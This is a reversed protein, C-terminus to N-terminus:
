TLTLGTESSSLDTITQMEICRMNINIAKAKEDAKAQAAM